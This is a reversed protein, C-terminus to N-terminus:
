RYEYNLGKYINNKTYLVDNSLDMKVRLVQKHAIIKRRLKASNTYSFFLLLM